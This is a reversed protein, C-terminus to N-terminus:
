RMGPLYKAMSPNISADKGFANILASGTASPSFVCGLTLYLGTGVLLVLMIPGWVVNNVSQLFGMLVDM